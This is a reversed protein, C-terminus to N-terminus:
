PMQRKRNKDVVAFIIVSFGICRLLYVSPDAEQMGNSIMIATREVALILFAISFLGFFRDESSKWFKAFFVSAVLCCMMAGGNM